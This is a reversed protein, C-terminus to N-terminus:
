FYYILKHMVTSIFFFVVKESRTQNQKRFLLFTSTEQIGIMFTKFKGSAFM